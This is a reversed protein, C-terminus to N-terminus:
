GQCHYQLTALTTELSALRQELAAVHADDTDDDEVCGVDAMPNRKVAHTTNDVEDVTFPSLIESMWEELMYARHELSRLDASALFTQVESLNGDANRLLVAALQPHHFDNKEVLTSIAAAYKIM